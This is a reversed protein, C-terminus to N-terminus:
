GHGNNQGEQLKLLQGKIQDAIGLSDNEAISKGYQQMMMDTFVKEGQGGGFMGKGDGLGDFMPKLMETAFVSEFQKASADIKALNPSSAAMQSLQAQRSAGTQAMRLGANSLIDSSTLNMMGM